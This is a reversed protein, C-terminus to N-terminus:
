ENKLKTKIQDLIKFVNVTEGRRFECFEGLEIVAKELDDTHKLRRQTYNDDM